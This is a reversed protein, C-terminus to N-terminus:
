ADDAKLRCKTVNRSSRDSNNEVFQKITTWSLFHGVLKFNDISGKEASESLGSLPATEKGDASGAVGIGLLKEGGTRFGAVVVLAFGM